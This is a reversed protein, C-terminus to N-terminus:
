EEFAKRGPGPANVLLAMNGPPHANRYMLQHAEGVEAFAWTRSVCPDIRGDAVLRTYEMCEARSAFHSGQLRKLRMWLLRLDVDANYGSTGGCIVVMGGNECVFMSTPITDQGSHEFVIDVGRREGLIDWIRKGFARVGRQWRDYADRDHWDPLRGWHDFERRDIVGRAGLQLCHKAKIEDSVVAIPIGGFERTIQIAASGLGGAGGWILVVSGPRVTNPHWGRLQRYATGGSVVLCAAEEWTLNAPKPLCQYDDVVTFQAFCGWNDEYGWVTRSSSAIPDLGMRVDEAQEDWRCSTMVVPDGPQLHRVDSGVAWVVGSGESGGVHFDEKEGRKQRMAIVDVPKALATWVGNYNVGAAMVQVLVQRPGPKPVDVVEIAFAEIPEGFRSQRILAAHMRSPVHGLPPSEGVDYLDRAGSM